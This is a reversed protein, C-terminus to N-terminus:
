IGGLVIDIQRDLATVINAPLPFTANFAASPDGASQATASARAIRLYYRQYGAVLDPAVRQLLMAGGRVAALATWKAVDGNRDDTPSSNDRV